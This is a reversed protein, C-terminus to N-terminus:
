KVEKETDRITNNDNRHLFRTVYGGVAMSLLGIITGILDFVAPILASSILFAGALIYRFMFRGRSYVIAQEPPMDAAKNVSRELSVVRLVCCIYGWVVGFFLTVPNPRFFSAVGFFVASAAASILLLQKIAVSM